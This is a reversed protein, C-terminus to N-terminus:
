PLHTSCSYKQGYCSIYNENFAVYRFGKKSEKPRFGLASSLAFIGAGIVGGANMGKDKNVVTKKRRLFHYTVKAKGVAEENAM